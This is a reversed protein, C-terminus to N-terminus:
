RRWRCRRRAGRRFAPPFGSSPPPCSMVPGVSLAGRRVAPTGSSRLSLRTWCATPMAPATLAKTSRTREPSRPESGTMTPSIMMQATKVARLGTKTEGLLRPSGARRSGRRDPTMASPMTQTSISPSISRETPEILPTPEASIPTSHTLVPTGSTRASRRASTATPATTPTSRRAHQAGPEPHRAEDRGEGAQEREEAQLEVHEAVGPRDVQGVARRKTAKPWSMTM